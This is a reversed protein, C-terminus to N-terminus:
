IRRTAGDVNSSLYKHFEDMDGKDSFELTVHLRGDAKQQKMGALKANCSGAWKMLARARDFNAKHDPRKAKEYKSAFAAEAAHVDDYQGIMTRVDMPISVTISFVEVAISPIVRLKAM